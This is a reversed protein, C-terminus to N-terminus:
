KKIFMWNEGIDVLYKLKTNVRLKQGPWARKM